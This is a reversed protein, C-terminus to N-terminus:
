GNKLWGSIQHNEGRVQRYTERCPDPACLKVHPTHSTPFLFFFTLLAKLYKEAAQQAHFCAPYLYPPEIALLAEGAKMDQEAKALWQGVLVEKVEEPPRM